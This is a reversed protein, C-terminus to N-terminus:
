SALRTSPHPFPSRVRWATGEDEALDAAIDELCALLNAPIEAIDYFAVTAILEEITPPGPLDVM